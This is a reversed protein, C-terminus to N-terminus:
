MSLILVTLITGVLSLVELIIVASPEPFSYVLASLPM